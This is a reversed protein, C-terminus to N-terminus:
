GESGEKSARKREGETGGERGRVRQDKQARAVEWGQKSARDREGRKSLRALKFGAGEGKSDTLGGGRKSARERRCTDSAVAWGGGGVGGRQQSDLIALVDLALIDLAVLGLVLVLVIVLVVLALFLFSTFM